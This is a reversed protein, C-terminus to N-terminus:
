KLTLTTISLVIVVRNMSILHIMSPEPSFWQGSCQVPQGPAGVQAVEVPWDALHRGAQSEEM